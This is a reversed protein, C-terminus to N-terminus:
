IVPYQMMIKHMKYLAILLIITTALGVIVIFILQGGGDVTAGELVHTISVGM